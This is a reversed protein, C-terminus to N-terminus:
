GIMKFLFSLFVVLVGLWIVVKIKSLNGSKYIFRKSSNFMGTLPVALFLPVMSEFHIESCIKLLFEFERKNKDFKGKISKPMRANGAQIFHCILYFSIGYFAQEEEPVPHYKVTWPEKFLVRQFFAQSAKSLLFAPMRKQYLSIEFPSVRLLDMKPLVMQSFDMWYVKSVEEPSLSFKLNETGLHIFVHPRAFVRTKRSYIKYLFFNKRFPGLYKVNQTKTLDVGIEELTERTAAQFDSENEECKGGPYALEGPHSYLLSRKIILFQLFSVSSEPSDDMIKSVNQSLFAEISSVPFLELHDLSGSPRAEDNSRPLPSHLQIVAPNIRFIIALGCQSHSRQNKFFSLKPPKQNDLVSYKFVQWEFSSFYNKLNM